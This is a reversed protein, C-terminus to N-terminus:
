KPGPAALLRGMEECLPGLDNPDRATLLNSVRDYVTPQDVVTFGANDLDLRISRVGTVHTGRPFVVQGGPDSRAVSILVQPGHCLSVILVGHARAERVVRLADCDTRLMDPNWAGGPIFIADYHTVMVKKEPDYEAVVVKKLSVNAKVCINDALWQAVVIHGEPKRYHFIWDQGALEVVAGRSKLYEMPVDLEPLEPGDASIFLVRKGKLDPKDAEKFVPLPYDNGRTDLTDPVRRYKKALDHSGPTGEAGDARAGVATSGTTVTGTFLALKVAQRRTIEGM